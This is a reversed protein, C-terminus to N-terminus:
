RLLELTKHTGLQETLSSGHCEELALTQFGGSSPLVIQERANCCQVVLPVDSCHVIWFSLSLGQALEIFKKMDADAFTANSILQM